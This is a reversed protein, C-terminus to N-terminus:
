IVYVNFNTTTDFDNSIKMHSLQVKKLSDLYMVSIVIHINRSSVNANFVFDFICCRDKRNNQKGSHTTFEM